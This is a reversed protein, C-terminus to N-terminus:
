LSGNYFRLHIQFYITEYFAIELIFWFLYIGIRKLDNPDVWNSNKQNLDEFYSLHLILLIYLFFKYIQPLHKYTRRTILHTFINGKKIVKIKANLYRRVIPNILISQKLSKILPFFFAMSQKDLSTNWIGLNLFILAFNTSSTRYYSLVGPLIDWLCQLVFVCM